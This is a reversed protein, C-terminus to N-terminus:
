SRRSWATLVTGQAIKWGRAAIGESPFPWQKAWALRAGNGLWDEEKLAGNDPTTTNHELVPYIGHALPVADTGGSLRLAKSARRTFFAPCRWLHRTVAVPV